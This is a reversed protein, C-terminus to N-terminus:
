PYKAANGELIKSECGQLMAANSHALDLSNMQKPHIIVLTVLQSSMIAICLLNYYHMRPM